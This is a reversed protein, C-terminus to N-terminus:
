VKKKLHQRVPLAVENSDPNLSNIPKEIKYIITSKGDLQPRRGQPNRIESTIDTITFNKTATFSFTKEGQFFYDGENNQRTLYTMCPLLSHNNVSGYYQTDTGEQVLSSNITLYSFDFKDPLNDAILEGQSASPRISGILSDGGLDFLPASEQNLSLEQTLSAPLDAGTSLPKIVNRLASQFTENEKFLTTNRFFANSSGFKPLLTNINFGMKDFLCNQYYFDNQGLIDENDLKIILNNNKDFLKIGTISIGSQSDIFSGQRQIATSFQGIKIPEISQAQANPNLTGKNKQEAPCIQHTRNFTICQQEPNDNPEFELGLDTTLGNGIFEPTNLGSISFRSFNDDFKIQPSNAGIMLYNLYNVSIDTGFEKSFQNNQLCVANNRTFSPDFGLIMGFKMNSADAVWHFPGQSDFQQVEDFNAIAPDGYNCACILGVFPPTTGDQIGGWTSSFYDINQNLDNPNIPTFVPVVAIDADKAMQNMEEVSIFRNELENYYGGGFVQNINSGLTKFQPANERLDFTDQFRILDNNTINNPNFKFSDDWRSRIWLNSLQSGDNVVNSLDRQFGKLGMPFGRDTDVICFNDAQAEALTAFKKRQNINFGNPPDTEQTGTPVGQTSLEDDYICVDLNVCLGNKYQQTTTDLKNRLDGMFKESKIWNKLKNITNQTYRINTTIIFGKEMTIHNGVVTPLDHALVAHTGFQGVGQRTFDGFDNFGIAATGNNIMIENNKSFPDGVVTFQKFSPVLGLWREPEEWAISQYFTTRRGCLSGNKPIDKGNNVFNCSMPQYVQSSFINPNDSFDLDLPDLTAAYQFNDADFFDAVNNLESKNIRETKGIQESIINAVNSPTQFGQPINISVNSTRLQPISVINDIDLDATNTEPAGGDSRAVQSDERLILGTFKHDLLFYKKGDFRRVDSSKYNSNLPSVIELIFDTGANPNPSVTITSNNGGADQGSFDKNGYDAISFKDVVNPISGLTQVTLIKIQMSSAGATDNTTVSYTNGAIFGSNANGAVGGGRQNIKLTFNKQSNPMTLENSYIQTNDYPDDINGNPTFPFNLFFTEGITRDGIMNKFRDLTFALRQDGAVNTNGGDAVNPPNNRNTVLVRQDGVGRYIRHNVFPMNATNKGTHNVYYAVELDLKNDVINNENEEGSFEMVEDSAGKVNIISQEINLIDGSNVVIGSNSVQNTWRNKYIDSSENKKNIDIARERNCELIIFKSM